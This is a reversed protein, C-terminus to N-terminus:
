KSNYTRLLRRIKTAREGSLGELFHDGGYQAGLSIQRNTVEKIGHEHFTKRVQVIKDYDPRPKKM